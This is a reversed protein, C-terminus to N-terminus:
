VHNQLSQSVLQSVITKVSKLRVEHLSMDSQREAARAMALAIEDGQAREAARAQLTQLQSRSELLESSLALAQQQLRAVLHVTSPM